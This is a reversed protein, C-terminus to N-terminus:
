MGLWFAYLQPKDDAPLGMYTAISFFSVAPVVQVSVTFPLFPVGGRAASL